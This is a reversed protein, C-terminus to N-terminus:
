ARELGVVTLGEAAAAAALAADCTALTAREEIALSLYAADHASLGHKLALRGIRAADGGGRSVLPLREARALNDFYEDKSLRGRRFAMLLVNRLEHRFLDPAVARDVALRGAVDDALPNKEDALFWAAAFSPDVVLTM